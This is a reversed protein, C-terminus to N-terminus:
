NEPNITIAFRVVAFKPAPQKGTTTLIWTGDLTAILPECVGDSFGCAFIVKANKPIATTDGDTVLLEYVQMDGLRYSQMTGKSTIDPHIVPYDEGDILDKRVIQSDSAVYNNPLTTRGLLYQVNEILTNIAQVAPMAQIKDLLAQIVPAKQTFKFEM